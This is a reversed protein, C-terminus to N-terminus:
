EQQMWKLLGLFRQGADGTGCCAFVCAAYGSWKQSVAATFTQSPQKESQEPVM